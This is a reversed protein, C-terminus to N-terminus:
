FRLGAHLSPWTRFTFGGSQHLTDLVPGANNAIDTGSWGMYEFWSVGAFASLKDLPLVFSVRERVMMDSRSSGFDLTAHAVLIDTELSWNSFTVLRAGFGVGLYADGRTVRDFAFIGGGLFGYFVGGTDYRLALQLPENTSAGVDGGLGRSRIYSFIGFPVGHMEKSVNVLGIQAGTVVQAVNILGLQLGRVDGGVNVIAIQAGQVDEAVDVMGNQLGAVDEAVNVPAVQLGLVDGAVNVAAALQLGTTPGNNWNAATAVEIGSFVGSNRNAIAALQLARVEGDTINLGSSLQLGESDGRAVNAVVSVQMGRMSQRTLTGGLSLSLGRLHDTTGYVVDIAFNKTLVADDPAPPLALEPVLSFSVPHTVERKKDAVAVAQVPADGGRRAAVEVRGQSLASRFLKASANAGEVTGELIEDKKEVRVNYVGPELGIEVARGEVKFLEAVLLGNKDRLFVRGALPEDITLSASTARLDTMVVDGTGSLQIEYAPHQPGYQTGETRALTEAFAFQYAENLTVRRDRTVDAAGRLGSILYHTFFSGKIRDSEQAAETESSSTLIAQGQVKSSTDLLFPPRMTGGKRRTLAGSQCSDVIAIRVDAPLTALAARFSQYSLQEAGLMLGNEDSHGSFYVILEVRSANGRDAMRTQLDALAMDFQTRGPNVLVVRDAPAVGGLASLVQAFAEADSTAYRLPTRSPGGSSVGVVLAFRRVPTDQAHAALPLALTLALLLPCRM